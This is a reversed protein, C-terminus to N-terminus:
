GTDVNKIRKVLINKKREELDVEITENFLCFIGM